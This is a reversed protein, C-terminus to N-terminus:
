QPPAGARAVGLGPPPASKVVAPHGFLASPLSPCLHVLVVRLLVYMVGLPLLLSVYSSSGSLLLGLVLGGYLLGMALHGLTMGRLAFDVAASAAVVLAVLTLPVRVWANVSDVAARSMLLLLVAQMAVLRRWAPQGFFWAIARGPGSEGLAVVTADVSARM